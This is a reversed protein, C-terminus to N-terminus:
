ARAIVAYTLPLSLDVVKSRKTATNKNAEKRAKAKAEREAERLKETGEQTYMMKRFFGARMHNM